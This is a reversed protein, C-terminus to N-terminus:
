FETQQAERSVYKREAGICVLDICFRDSCYQFIDEDSISRTNSWNEPDVCEWFYNFTRMQLTDLFGDFFIKKRIRGIAPLSGSTCFV